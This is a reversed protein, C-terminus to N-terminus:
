AAARTKINWAALAAAADEISRVLAWPVGRAACWDRFGRQLPSLGGTATKVELFAARGDPLILGLDPVGARVGEAKLKKGESLSRGGGNPIAYVFIDPAVRRLYSVIAAQIKHETM